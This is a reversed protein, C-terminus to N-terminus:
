KRRGSLPGEVKVKVLDFTILERSHLHTRSYGRIEDNYSYWSDLVINQKFITRKM